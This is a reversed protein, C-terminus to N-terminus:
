HLLKLSSKLCLVRLRCRVSLDLSKGVQCAVFVYTKIKNLKNEIYFFSVTSCGEWCLLASENHPVERTSQIGSEVQQLSKRYGMGATRLYQLGVAGERMERHTGPYSVQLATSNCSSQM